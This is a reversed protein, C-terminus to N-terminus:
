SSKRMVKSSLNQFDWISIKYKLVWSLLLPWWLFYYIKSLMKRSSILTQGLFDRSEYVPASEQDVKSHKCGGFFIIYSLQYFCCHYQHSTIAVRLKSHYGVDFLCFLTAVGMKESTPGGVLTRRWTLGRRRRRRRRRFITTLGITVM